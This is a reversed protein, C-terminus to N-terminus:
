RRDVFAGVAEAVHSLDELRALGHDAEPLEVVDDSLERALRGDWSPDATGGILLAPATRRRLGEACAEDHLLPTLWVAPVRHHAAVGTALSTLSKGALLRVTSNPAGAIAAEAHDRAWEVRDSGDGDYDEWVQVVSWGRDLLPRIVFANVPMGGLMAGPLVAACRLPDGAYLYGGTLGLEVRSIEM